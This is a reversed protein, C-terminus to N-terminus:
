ILESTREERPFAFHFFLLLLTGASFLALLLGALSGVVPVLLVLSLALMGLM